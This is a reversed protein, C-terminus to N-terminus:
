EHSSSHGTVHRKGQINWQTDPVTAEEILIMVPQDLHIQTINKFYMELIKVEEM